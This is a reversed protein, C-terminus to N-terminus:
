WKMLNFRDANVDQLRRYCVIILALGVIAEAAAVTIIFVVFASASQEAIGFSRGFALLVINSANLMLEISMLILIANRRVLVGTLGIAFLIFAVVLYHTPSIDLFMEWSLEFPLFSLDIV